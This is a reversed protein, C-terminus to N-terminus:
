RGGPHTCGATQSAIVCSAVVQTRRLGLEDEALSASAEMVERKAMNIGKLM